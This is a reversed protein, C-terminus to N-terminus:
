CGVKNYLQAPTRYGLAQHLREENYYRLYRSLGQRAERPTVYESLYVEEYKVTRWLRETFINDMCRGRGDMSVQVGSGVFQSTFRESTFHSGQDSNVIEPVAVSLAQQTCTLVFEMDLTDSLEWAVVYRSYWDLFAVLYLWGGVLRVYTIDVGWVQNPREITLGRLLYPYVRHEPGSAAISLRPKPYLTELGMEQRYRRITHRGVGFGEGALVRVVKRSGLFPHATYLCDLRHKVRVEQDRAPRVQYYLSSRSVSLLGAQCSVSLPAVADREM